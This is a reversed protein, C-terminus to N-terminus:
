WLRFGTKFRVSLNGLHRPGHPAELVDLPLEHDGAQQAVAGPRRRFPLDPLFVRSDSGGSSPLDKSLAEKAVGHTKVHM